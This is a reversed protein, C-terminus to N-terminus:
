EKDQSIQFSTIDATQNAVFDLFQLRLEGTTVGVAGDIRKNTTSLSDDDGANVIFRFWRATATGVLDSRATLRWTQSTSKLITTGSAAEFELGDTTDGPVWANGDKTVYGIFTGNPVDNADSPQVGDYVAIVGDTFDTRLKDVLSTAEGTSIRATM